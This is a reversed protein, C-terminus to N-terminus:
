KPDPNVEFPDLLNIYLLDNNKALAHLHKDEHTACQDSIRIILHHRLHYPAIRLATKELPHQTAFASHSLNM